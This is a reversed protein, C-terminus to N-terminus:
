NALGKHRDQPVSKSFLDSFRALTIIAEKVTRMHLKELGQQVDEFLKLMWGRCRPMQKKQKM